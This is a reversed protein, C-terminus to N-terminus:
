TFDAFRKSCFLDGQNEPSHKLPRNCAHKAYAENIHHVPALPGDPIFTGTDKCREDIPLFYLPRTHATGDTRYEAPPDIKGPSAPFPLIELVGGRVKMPFEPIKRHYARYMVPIPVRHQLVQCRKPSKRCTGPCLFWKWYM